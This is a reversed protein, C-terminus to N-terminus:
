SHVFHFTVRYSRLTFPPNVHHVPRYSIIFISFYILSWDTVFLVNEFRPTAERIMPIISLTNIGVDVGAETAGACTCGIISIMASSRWTRVNIKHLAAESSTMEHFAPGQLDMAFTRTTAICGLILVELLAEIM